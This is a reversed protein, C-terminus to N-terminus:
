RTPNLQNLYDLVELQPCDNKRRAALMFNEFSDYIPKKIPGM